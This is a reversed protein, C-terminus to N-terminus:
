QVAGPLIRTTALILAPCDVIETTLWFSPGVVIEAEVTIGASRWRELRGQVAPSFSAELQSSVELWFIQVGEPASLEAAELGRALEPSVAYGAVEIAEGRALTQRLGEIVGKGDGGLMESAMKLRLFQQFFQKGSAVPQWLLLGLGLDRAVESALLCGSRLGWLWVAATQGAEERLWAVVARVDSCWGEWSADGHDGSSDGCGLLDPVLVMYGASALRRAQLSVLHRSKNMEEGFAPVHVVGAKLPIGPPPAYLVCYRYGVEMPLYFARILSVPDARSVFGGAYTAGSM